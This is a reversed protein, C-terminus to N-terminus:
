LRVVRYAQLRLRALPEALAARGEVRPPSRAGPESSPQNPVGLLSKATAIRVAPRAIREQDYPDLPASAPVIASATAECFYGSWGVM